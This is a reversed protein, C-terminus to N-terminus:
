PCVRVTFGHVGSRAISTTVMYNYTGNDQQGEHEMAVAEGNVLEGNMDVGGVYLEVVVDKSNLHGLHV